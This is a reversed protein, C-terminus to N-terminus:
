PTRTGDDIAFTALRDMTRLVAVRLFGPDLDAALASM